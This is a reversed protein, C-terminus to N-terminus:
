APATYRAEVIERLRKRASAPDANDQLGDAETAMDDDKIATRFWAAYDGQRLHHLFTEDDVGDATQLFLMLNQARLNLADRPGRFYFSKDEGLEGEAYKRTHRLRAQKPRDADIWRPALDSLRNWFLVQQDGGAPPLAPLAIALASCFDRIVQDAQPGLAIVTQVGALARPSMADPHVTVYITAPLDAPLVHADAPLDAPLMHHAEDIVLWHPRALRSRMECVKSILHSFFRPREAVPLALMNVAVPTPAPKELVSLAEDATPSNSADGLVVAEALHAYDGEPDFVATQFGQIALKEIIATALTSKGLGSTGAILVAGQDSRLVADPDVGLAIARRQAAKAELRRDADDVLASIAEAVGAGHDGQTVLDATEKVADLANSVAVACGCATLFAHDNEADGIGLVNLPSLRLAELGAALGSAKNVGPPLVMVAGKNFIIQWELGLERICDLVAAENPEWTAVIGRGVSLPSVGRAKLAAVLAEPPAAAVPREERTAPFYLLSGNEAIILDFLEIAEFVRMLDPLERGTVMILKRGSAKLRELAAMTPADVRGDHALTGDYDTAFAILHM